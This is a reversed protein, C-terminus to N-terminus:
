SCCCSLCCGEAKVVVAEDVAVEEAKAGNFAVNVDAAAVVVVNDLAFVVVVVVNAFAFVADVANIVVDANVVVALAVFAAVIEMVVAMVVVAM